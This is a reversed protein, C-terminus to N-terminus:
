ITLARDLALSGQTQRAFLFREEKRVLGRCELKNVREGSAGYCRRVATTVRCEYVIVEKRV